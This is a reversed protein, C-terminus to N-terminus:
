APPPDAALLEYVLLGIAVLLVLHVANGGFNAAQAVFWAAVLVWVATWRLRHGTAISVNESALARISKMCSSRSDAAPPSGHESSQGDAGSVVVGLERSVDGGVQLDREAVGVDSFKGVVVDEDLDVLVRALVVDVDHLREDARRDAVRDHLKQDHEVRELAGRGAADGGDHRVVGVAPAVLLVLRAHRDRRAEERVEDPDGAGIAEQRHIHVLHLNLTEERDRTILERRAVQEDLGEARDDLLVRAADCQDNGVEAVGVRRAADRLSQLNREDEHLLRMAVVAAPALDDGDDTVYVLLARDDDVVLDVRARRDDIGDADELLPAHVLDVDTARM